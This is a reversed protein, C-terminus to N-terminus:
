GCNKRTVGVTAATMVHRDPIIHDAGVFAEAQAVQVWCIHLMRVPLLTDREGGHSVINWDNFGYGKM